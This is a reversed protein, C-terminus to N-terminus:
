GYAPDAGHSRGRDHRQAGRGHVFFKLEDSTLELNDQKKAIIDVARM